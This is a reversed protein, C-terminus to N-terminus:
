RIVPLLKEISICEENDSIKKLRDSHLLQAPACIYVGQVCIHKHSTPQTATQSSQNISQNETEHTKM